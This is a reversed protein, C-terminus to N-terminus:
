SASTLARMTADLHARMAVAAAPGDRAELASLIADHEDFSHYSDDPARNTTALRRWVVVQRVSNLIAFLAELMSNGAAKAITNHFDHDLAEYAEWSPADRMAQALGRLTRLQRPPANLAAMQAIEPELVLRATMAEIPGTRESLDAVAAEIGRSARTPRPAKALFTGRGVHRELVGETELVLLANRLETRSLGLQDSLTREPPLRAGRALGEGAIWRRLRILTKDHMPQGFHDLPGPCVHSIYKSEDWTHGTLTTFVM